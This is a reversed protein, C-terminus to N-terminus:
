KMVVPINYNKKRLLWVSAALVAFLALPAAFAPVEPVPTGSTSLQSDGGGMWGPSVVVTFAANQTPAASTWVQAAESTSVAMNYTGAPLWMIYSTTQYAPYNDTAPAPTATVQAWALSRLNGYMDFWRVTGSLTAMDNMPVYLEVAGGWPVQVNALASGMSYMRWDDMTTTAATAPMATANDPGRSDFAWVKVTYLGAGSGTWGPVDVSGKMGSDVQGTSGGAPVPWGGAWTRVANGYYQYFGYIDMSQASGAPVEVRNGPFYQDYPVSYYPPMWGSWDAWTRWPVNLAPALLARYAAFKAATYMYDSHFVQAWYARQTYSCSPYEYMSTNTCNLLYHENVGKAANRAADQQITQQNGDPPTPLTGNWYNLGSGQAPGQVVMWDKNATLSTYPWGAYELYGGGNNVRTYLNPQAQGYISSGVFNGASDYAEAYVFGNFNTPVGEHWFDVTVRIQGGQIMDAEIDGRGSQPIQVPFSDTSSARRMVYGHTEAQFTYEGAPLRTSRLTM